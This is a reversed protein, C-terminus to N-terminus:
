YYRDMARYLIAESLHPTRINEEDALDAITRAVKLSRDYARASFGLRNVAAELLKEGDRDIKCFQKVEKPGMQANAYIRRGKFRLLQYVRSRAVRERISASSEGEAKTVMDQFKVGPVEVQIDIRDLLPGSVKAYYRSRQSGTCDADRGALGRQM